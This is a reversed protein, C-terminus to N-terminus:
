DRKNSLHVPVFNGYTGADDEIADFRMARVGEVISADIASAAPTTRASASRKPLRRPPRRRLTIM